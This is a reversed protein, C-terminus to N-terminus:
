RPLQASKKKQTRQRMKRRLRVDDAIAGCLGSLIAPDRIEHEWLVWVRWGARVLLREDRADRERNKAIKSAWYDSPPRRDLHKSALCEPCGHWFCGHVQVVTSASDFVFDPTGPLGRVNKRPRLGLEKFCSAVALEPKTGSSKNARM